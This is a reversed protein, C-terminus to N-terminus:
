VMAMTTEILPLNFDNNEVINVPNLHTSKNHILVLLNINLEITKKSILITIGGSIINNLYQKKTKFQQSANSIEIGIPINNENFDISVFDNLFESYEFDKYIEDDLFAFLIDNEHDYDIEMIEKEKKM